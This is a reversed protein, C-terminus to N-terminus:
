YLIILDIHRPNLRNFPQLFYKEEKTETVKDVPLQILYKKIHYELFTHFQLQSGKNLLLSVM